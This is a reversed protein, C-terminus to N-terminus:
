GLLLRRRMRRPRQSRDVRDGGTKPPMSHCESVEVSSVEEAGDEGGDGRVFSKPWSDWSDEIVGQKEISWM